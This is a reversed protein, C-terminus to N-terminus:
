ISINLDRLREAGKLKKVFKKNLNKKNRYITYKNGERKGCVYILRGYEKLSGIRLMNKGVLPEVNVEKVKLQFNGTNSEEIGDIDVKRDILEVNGEYEGKELYHFLLNVERFYYDMVSRFIVPKKGKKICNIVYYGYDLVDMEKVDDVEILGFSYLANFINFIYYENDVKKRGLKDYFMRSINLSALEILIDRESEFREWKIDEIDNIFLKGNLILFPIDIFGGEKLSINEVVNSFYDIKYDLFNFFMREYIDRLIVYDRERRDKNIKEKVKEDDTLDVLRVEKYKNKFHHKDLVKPVFSGRFSRKRALREKAMYFIRDYCEKVYISKRDQLSELKSVVKKMESMRVSGKM